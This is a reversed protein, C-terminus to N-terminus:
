EIITEFVFEGGKIILGSMQTSTTDGDADFSWQGLAGQFDKTAAIEELVMARLALVDSPNKAAAKEIAALVVKASEYAYATYAEAPANPYKANYKEVFEAGAGTLQDPPVGGFTIFSGEAAAAAAQVFESEYVGDPGMLMVDPMADRLDRWLQGANNQTIGGYYVLDPNTAKIKEALAKYDAAKGDIGDRGVVTLGNDGSRDNFVDAIGKGYV